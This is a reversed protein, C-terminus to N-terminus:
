RPMPQQPPPYAGQPAAQPYAGQPPYYSGAPPAIPQGYVPAGAAQATSGPAYSAPAPRQAMMAVPGGATTPQYPAMRGSLQAVWQQAESFSPDMQAAKQFHALAANNDRKQMLMYGLNYHGVTAGHAESLQALAENTKGQDVLVAALNARYLKEHPELEVAKQLSAAAGDLQNHRHYCLGMDNHVSADKGHKKLARNYYKIAAQFNRQRDELHAYALLAGKHNPDLSLAKKLQNEAEPINGNRENIEAIAVYVSPGPKKDHALVDVSEEGSGPIKPKPKVLSALKDAGGKVSAGVKDGFSQNQPQYPGKSSACGAALAPLLALAAVTARINRRVALGWM